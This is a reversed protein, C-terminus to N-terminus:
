HLHERLVPLIIDWAGHLVLGLITGVVTIVAGVAYIVHSVTSLKKTNERSEHTLTEIAQTLQGVTKQMEFVAQLTFSYDTGPYATPATEAFAKPNTASESDRRDQKANM